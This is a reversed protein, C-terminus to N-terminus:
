NDWAWGAADMLMDNNQVWGWSSVENWVDTGVSEITDWNDYIFEGAELAMGVQKGKAKNQAWGWSSVENWVDTGVSEITDWNDYIAQGAELAM